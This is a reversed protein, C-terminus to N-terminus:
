WVYFRLIPELIRQAATEALDQAEDGPLIGKGDRLIIRGNQVGFFLRIPTHKEVPDCTEIRLSQPIFRVYLLERRRDSIKTIVFKLSEATEPQCSYQLGQLESAELASHIADSIRQALKPAGDALIKKHSATIEQSRDESILLDSQEEELKRLCGPKGPM